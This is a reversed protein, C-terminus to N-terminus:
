IWLLLSIYSSCTTYTQQKRKFEGIKRGDSGTYISLRESGSDTITGGSLAIKM